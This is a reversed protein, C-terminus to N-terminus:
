VINNIESLSKVVWDPVPVGAPYERGDRSVWVVDLSAARAGGVDDVPSDGVFLAEQPKVGLQELAAAFILRHPKRWGFEDSILIADFYTEVGWKKLIARATPAHDFNSVLVLNNRVRM